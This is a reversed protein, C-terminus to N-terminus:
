IPVVYMIAGSCYLPGLANRTTEYFGYFPHYLHIYLKAYVNQM